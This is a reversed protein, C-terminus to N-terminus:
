QQPMFGTQQQGFGGQQQGQAQQNFGGQQQGQAQQNFGGQQQGGAQQNFGGQGQGQAQQNFGGQGQGQAQQNFGGQQQGGAQQNFGGQGQGQAQQNFGGQGQGQAQQNFGGQQQGQAQQNFGGQQQGANGGGFVSSSDFGSGGFNQRPANASAIIRVADLGAAVGKNGKANYAYCHVIVDVKQGGYLLNGYQMPDMINGNEDWVEPLRKTNGSVVAFGTYLGNFETAAAVGINMRGGQPLVGKFESEQLTKQGLQDFLAIDPNNPDVVVKLSYKIGNEGQEPRTVGDWVVSCDKILVHTPDLQPM